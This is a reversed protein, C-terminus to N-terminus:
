LCLSGTLQLFCAFFQTLCNWIHLCTSFYEAWWRPSKKNRIGYWVIRHSHLLLFFCVFTFDTDKGRRGLYGFKYSDLSIVTKFKMAIM